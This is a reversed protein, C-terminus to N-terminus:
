CNIRSHFKSIYYASKKSDNMLYEFSNTANIREDFENLKDSYIRYNDIIRNSDEEKGMFKFAFGTLRDYPHGSIMFSYSTIFWRDAENILKPTVILLDVKFEGLGQVLFECKNKFTKNDKPNNAIIRIEIPRVSDQTLFLKIAKLLNPMKAEKNKKDQLLYPDSILIYNTPHVCQKLEDMDAKALGITTSKDFFDDFKYNKGKVIFGYKKSIKDCIDESYDTFLFPLPLTFCENERNINDLIENEKVIFLDSKFSTNNKVWQSIIYERFNKIEKGGIYNEYVQIIEENKITSYIESAVFLKRLTSITAIIKEQRLMDDYDTQKRTNYEIESIRDLFKESLYIRPRM